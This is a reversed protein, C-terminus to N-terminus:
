SRSSEGTSCNGRQICVVKPPAGYVFSMQMFDTDKSLIVFRGRLAYEWVERDSAEALGVAGVHESRPYGEELWSVLRFSLNQDFLLKV